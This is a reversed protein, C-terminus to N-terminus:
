AELRIDGATVKGDNWRVLVFSIRVGVLPLLREMGMFDRGRLNTHQLMRIPFFPGFFPLIQLVPFKTFLM